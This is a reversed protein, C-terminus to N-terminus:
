LEAEPARTRVWMPVRLCLELMFCIAMTKTVINDIENYRQSRRTVVRTLIPERQPEPQRPYHYTALWASYLALNTLQAM